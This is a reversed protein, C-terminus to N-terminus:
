FNYQLKLTSKNTKFNLKDEGLPSFAFKHGAMLFLSNSIQYGLSPEFYYANLDVFEVENPPIIPIFELSPDQMATALYTSNKYIEVGSSLELRVRKAIKQFVYISFDFHTLNDPFTIDYLINNNQFDVLPDVNPEDLNLQGTDTSMEDSLSANYQKGYLARIGLGINPKSLEFSLGGSFGHSNLNSLYNAASVLGVYPKFKNKSQKNKLIEIFPIQKVIKHSYAIELDDELLVPCSPLIHIENISAKENKYLDKSFGDHPIANEAFINLDNERKIELNKIISNDSNAKKLTKQDSFNNEFANKNNTNETITRKQNTVKSTTKKSNNTNNKQKQTKSEFSIQNQDNMQDSQTLPKNNENEKKVFANQHVNQVDVNNEKQIVANEEAFKDILSTNMKELSFLGIAVLFLLGSLFWFLGKRRKKKQPMKADLLDHMNHWGKDIRNINNDQKMTDM